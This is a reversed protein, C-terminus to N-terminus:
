TDATNSGRIYARAIPGRVISRTGFKDVRVLGAKADTYFKTKSVRALELIEGVSFNGHEFRDALAFVRGADPSHSQAM